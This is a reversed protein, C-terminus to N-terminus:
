RGRHKRVALFAGLLSGGFLLLLALAIAAAMTLQNAGSSLFRPEYQGHSADRILTLDGPMPSPPYRSAWQAFREAQIQAAALRQQLLITKQSLEANKRREEELKASEAQLAITLQDIRLERDKAVKAISLKEARAQEIVSNLRGVEAEAEEAKRQATELNAKALLFSGGSGLLLGLLFFGEAIWKGFNKGIEVARKNALIDGDNGHSINHSTIDM